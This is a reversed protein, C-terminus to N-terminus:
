KGKQTDRQGCMCKFYTLVYGGIFVQYPYIVEHNCKM